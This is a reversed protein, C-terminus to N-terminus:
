KSTTTTPSGEPAGPQEGPQGFNLNVVGDVKWRGGVRVLELRVYTALTRRTGSKGESVTDVVVISSASHAELEGVFVDLNTVRSQAETERLIVDLGGSFAQEYQKRFAGTAFSLVRKKTDDLKGFDYTLLATGFQASTTRVEAEQDDELRSALTLSLGALGIGIAMLVAVAVVYSRPPKFAARTDTEAPPASPVPAIPPGLDTM